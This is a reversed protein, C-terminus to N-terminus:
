NNIIFHTQEKSCKNVLSVLYKSLHTSYNIGIFCMKLRMCARTQCQPAALQLVKSTEIYFWARLCSMRACVLIQLLFAIRMLTNTSWNGLYLGLSKTCCVEKNLQRKLSHLCSHFPCHSIEDRM